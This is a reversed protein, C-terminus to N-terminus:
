NLPILYITYREWETIGFSFKTTLFNYHYNPKCVFFTSKLTYFLYFKTLLWFWQILVFINASYKSVVKRYKLTIRIIRIMVIMAIMRTSFDCLFVYTNLAVYWFINTQHDYIVVLEYLENWAELIRYIYEIWVM